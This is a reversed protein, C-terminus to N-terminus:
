TLSTNGHFVGDFLESAVIIVIVGIVTILAFEMGSIFASIIILFSVVVSQILSEDQFISAM